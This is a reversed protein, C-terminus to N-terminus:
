CPNVVQPEILRLRVNCSLCSAKMHKTNEIGYGMVLSVKKLRVVTIKGLSRLFTYSGDQRHYGRQVWCSDCCGSVYRCKGCGEPKLKFRKASSPIPGKSHQHVKETSSQSTPAAPRKLVKASKAKPEPTAASKAKAIKKTTASKKAAAKPKKVPLNKTKTVPPDAQTAPEQVKPSDDEKQVKEEPKEKQDKKDKKDQDRNQLCAALAENVAIASTDSAKKETEETESPPGDMLALHPRSSSM